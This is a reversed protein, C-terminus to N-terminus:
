RATGSFTSRVWTAANAGDGWLDYIFKKREIVGAV